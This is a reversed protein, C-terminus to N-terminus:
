IYKSHYVKMSSINMSYEVVTSKERVENKNDTNSPDEMDTSQTDRLQSRKQSLVQKLEAHLKEKQVKSVFTSILDLSTLFGYRWM